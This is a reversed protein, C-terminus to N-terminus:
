GTLLLWKNFDAVSIPRSIYFGQGSDCNLDALQQWAEATELGIATLSYNM